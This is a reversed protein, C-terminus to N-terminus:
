SSNEKKEKSELHLISFILIGHMSLKTAVCITLHSLVPIDFTAPSSDKTAPNAM